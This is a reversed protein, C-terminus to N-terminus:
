FILLFFFNNNPFFFFFFGAAVPLVYYSFAGAVTDDNLDFFLTETDELCAVPDDPSGVSGTLESEPVESCPIRDPPPQLPYEQPSVIIEVDFASSFWSFVALSFTGMQYDEHANPCVVFSNQSWGWNPPVRGKRWQATNSDPFAYLNSLFFVPVGYYPRIKIQFPKCYDEESVFFRFYATEQAEHTIVPSREGLKM